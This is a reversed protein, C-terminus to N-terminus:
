RLRFSVTLRITMAVPVGNRQGPLYQYQQVAKKAAEDILPHVSRLVTVNRVRGDAGVVAQLLVNGELQAARAPAPYVPDVGRVRVPQTVIDAAATVPTPAVPTNGAAAPLDTPQAPAQPLPVDVSSTLPSPPENVALPPNQPQAVSAEKVPGSQQRDLAPPVHTAPAGIPAPTVPRPVVRAPEVPAEAAVAPQSLVPAIPERGNWLTLFAAAAVLFGVAAAAWGLRRRLLPPRTERGADIDSAPVAVGVANELATVFAGASSWRRAPDKAVAKRIVDVVSRPIAGAAPDPLPENLHKMLVAVPSDANFPVMGVFMEYAVIGLSYIDSRHDVGRGLAQEPAMYHPTGILTGARTMHLDRELMQALGFDAICVINPHDLLINAPKIDRHVVGAAHAYDLADAVSRLMRVTDRPTPRHHKLFMALNGGALLRMSMWPVTEDIGSAYIAVINPHELRAIVRAEREFRKEFTGDHLFEPPLVKLAVLRDLQPDHAQYVTGM